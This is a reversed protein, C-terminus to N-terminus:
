RTDAQVGCRGCWWVVGDGDIDDQGGQVLHLADAPQEGPEWAAVPRDHDVVTRGIAGGLRRLRATCEDHSLRGLPKAGGTEGPQAGGGCRHHREHVGVGAEVGGVQRLDGLRASRTRPARVGSPRDAQGSCARTALRNRAQSNRRRASTSRVSRPGIRAARRRSRRASPIASRRDPQGRPITNSAASAPQSMSSTATRYRALAPRDLTVPVIRPVIVATDSM